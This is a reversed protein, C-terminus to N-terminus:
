PNEINCYIPKSISKKIIKISYKSYLEEDTINRTENPFSIVINGPTVENYKYFDDVEPLGMYYECSGLAYTISTSGVDEEYDDFLVLLDDKKLDDKLVDNIDKFTSLPENTIPNKSNIELDKYYTKWENYKGLGANYKVGLHEIVLTGTIEVNKDDTEYILEFPFEGNKVEPQPPNPSFFVGLGIIIWPLSLIAVLLVIFVVGVSSATSIDRHIKM